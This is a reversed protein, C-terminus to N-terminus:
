LSLIDEKPVIPEKDVAIAVPDPTPSPSQEPLLVPLSTTFETTSEARVVELAEISPPTLPPSNAITAAATTIATNSIENTQEQVQHVIEEAKTTATTVVSDYTGAMAAPQLTTDANTVIEKQPAHVISAEQGDVVIPVPTVVAVLKVESLTAAESLAPMSVSESVGANSATVSPPHNLSNHRSLTLTIAELSKELESQEKVVPHSCTTTQLGEQDQQEGSISSQSSSLPVQSPLTTSPSCLETIVIPIVGQQQQQQHQHEELSTPPAPKSVLEGQQQNQEEVIPAVVLGPATTEPTPTHAAEPVPLAQPELDYERRKEIAKQKSTELQRRLGELDQIAEPEANAPNSPSPTKKLSEDAETGSQTGEKEDGISGTLKKQKNKGAKEMKKLDEKEKKECKKDGKDSSSSSSSHNTVTRFSHRSSTASRSSRISDWHVMSPDLPVKDFHRCHNRIWTTFESRVASADLDWHPDHMSGKWSKFVFDLPQLKLLQSSLTHTAQYSCIPDDTGHLLLLPLPLPFKKWRKKLIKQGQYIMDGLCQLSISDRILGDNLMREQEALDRTLEEATVRFGVSITPYWRGLRNYTSPFRTGAGSITPKLYPSSSIVGALLPTRQGLGCVYNLVLAGGMGHGMLFIPKEPHADQARDVAGGTIGYAEERAGTEGFGPLDFAQVEMGRAAFQIFLPQYRECHEMVDHVFVVVSLVPVNLPQWTKTFIHISDDASRVWQNRVQCLKEPEFKKRAIPLSATSNNSILSPPTNSSFGNALSGRSGSLSVGTPQIFPM